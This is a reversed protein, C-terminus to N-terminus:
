NNSTRVLSRRICRVIKAASVLAAHQRCVSVSVGLSVIGEGSALRRRLYHSSLGVTLYATSIAFFRLVDSVPAAYETHRTPATAGLQWWPDATLAGFAAVYEVLLVALFLRM